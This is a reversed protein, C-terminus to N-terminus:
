VPRRELWMNTKNNITKRIQQKRTILRKKEKELLNTVNEVNNELKKIEKVAETEQLKNEKTRLKWLQVSYHIQGFVSYRICENM